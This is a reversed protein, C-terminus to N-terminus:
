VSSEKQKNLLKIYEKVQLSNMGEVKKVFEDITNFDAPYSDVEDRKIMPGVLSDELAGLYQNISKVIVDVEMMTLGKEKDYKFVPKENLSDANTISEMLSELSMLGFVGFLENKSYHAFQNRDLFQNASDLHLSCLEKVDVNHAIKKLKVDYYSDGDKTYVFLLDSVYTYTFAESKIEGGDSVSNTVTDKRVRYGLYYVDLPLSKIFKDFM